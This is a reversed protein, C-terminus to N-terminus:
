KFFRLRKSLLVMDRLYYINESTLWKKEFDKQHVLTAISALTKLHFTRQEKTGVFVFIAKVANENITFKVGQKCRVLMLFFRDSGEIIIHPIAVFKSIATNCEEQRKKLLSFVESKNLYIDNSIKASIIKFFQDLDLPGEIDLVKADSVLVDFKDPKIDDRARLIERLETELLHETLRNDTIRKLLHLLAYEGKYKNRSYFYYFIFILLLFSLSVEIAELGLDIIFFSFIIIGIIQLWPYLPAKFSPRYNKLKSERLIIVCINTLVYSTLIMTSAAKVLMDLPLLLSVSIFVGTILISIVPTKFRKNIKSINNPLLNDRSLALPYRSASMIGANATTIFALLAAISMVIFGPSGMFSRASDAIPTLSGSFDEPKLIGTTIFIMLTYLITVVILSTIIALPINKKPNKIEESVSAIKLLGGFSIFIYGATAFIPNIGKPTIPHFHSLNVSHIGLIVYLAMSTLLGFVLFVQFKASEKVGIINLIIFFFCLIISPILVNVGTILYVIESIGFIAFASKLSLAFWSLFGSITGMLPGL